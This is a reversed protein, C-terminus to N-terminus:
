ALLLLEPYNLLGLKCSQDGSWLGPYCDSLTLWCRLQSSGLVYMHVLMRSSGLLPCGIEDTASTHCCWITLESSTGDHASSTRCQSWIHGSVLCRSWNLYKMRWCRSHSCTRTWWYNMACRCLPRAQSKDEFFLHAWQPMFMRSNWYPILMASPTSQDLWNRSCSSTSVLAM